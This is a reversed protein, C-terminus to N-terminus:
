GVSTHVGLEDDRDVETIHHDGLEVLNGGFAKWRSPTSGGIRPTCM